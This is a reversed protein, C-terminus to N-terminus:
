HFNLPADSKDLLIQHHQLLTKLGQQNRYGICVFVSTCWANKSAFESYDIKQDPQKQADIRPILVPL